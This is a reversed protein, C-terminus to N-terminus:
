TCLMLLVKAKKSIEGYHVWYISIADKLEAPYILKL